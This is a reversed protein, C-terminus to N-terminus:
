PNPFFGFLKAAGGLIAVVLAIFIGRNTFDQYAVRTTLGKIETTLREDLAKIDGRIESQGIEVKTLREDIKDFKQNVDRQLSDIKGEIRTLVAELSYTVTDNAM